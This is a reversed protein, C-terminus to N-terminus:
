CSIARIVFRATHRTRQELLLERGKTVREIAAQNYHRISIMEVNENYYVNFEECLEGRLSDIKEREDDICINISVASVQVINVKINFSGFSQFVRGLNEGMAFSYDKPVVSLLIQHEKKTFVPIISAVNPSDKIITGSADPEVFSKVYLPINKNFLPRITKPHIVKAGSFTMELAERYSMEDLKAADPFWKPDANLIGPVDKWVVVKEANLVSAIIAATFDSGERGLTTSSGIVTGGIFGQTIYKKKKAFDFTAKLRLTTEGWLIGADRHLDDTVINRRADVWQLDMGSSCLYESVIITSWIEGYSVIQDYEYNYTRKKASHLYEKLLGFSIDLKEKARNKTMLLGEIIAVHFMYLNDLNDVYEEDDGYWHRTLIELANTTKGIASVVIVLDEKEKSVISALNKIGTSDKVSAGGFKYVIM